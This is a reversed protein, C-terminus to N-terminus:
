DAVRWLQFDLCGSKGRRRCHVRGGPAKLTSSAFALAERDSVHGPLTLTVRGDLHSVRLSMRRARGSRRLTLTISPDEPLHHQTM